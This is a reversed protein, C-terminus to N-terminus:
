GLLLEPARYWRTAVYDTMIAGDDKPKVLPRALGFDCIKLDCQKNILLNRTKLDRHVVNASHIYNLGCLTQYIFYKYHDEKLGEGGKKLFGAIDSDM